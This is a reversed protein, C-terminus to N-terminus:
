LFVVDVQAATAVIEQARDEVDGVDKALLDTGKERWFVVVM